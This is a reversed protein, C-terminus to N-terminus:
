AGPTLSPPGGVALITGTHLSAFRSGLRGALHDEAQTGTCHGLACRQVERRLLDDIVRDLTAEGATGLHLGGTLLAITAGPRV